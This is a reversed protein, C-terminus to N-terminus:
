LSRMSSSGAHSIQQLTCLLVAFSLPDCSCAAKWFFGTNTLGKGPARAFVEPSKGYAQVFAAQISKYRDKAADGAFCAFQLAEPFHVPNLIHM